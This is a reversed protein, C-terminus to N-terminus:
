SFKRWTKIEKDLKATTNAVPSLARITEDLKFQALEFLHESPLYSKLAALLQHQRVPPLSDGGQLLDGLMGLYMQIYAQTWYIGERGCSAGHAPYFRANARFERRLRDLGRLWELPHGDKMFLHMQNYILDGCFVMQTDQGEIFWVGDCDSECGGYDHIQFTVGDFVLKDVHRVVRNPFIRRQPFNNGFAQRMGEAETTDRARAQDISEKLAFFDVARDGIIEAVGMYHDPHGHTLLVALLPKKIEQEILTIVARSSSLAVGGDIVVVGRRTEVLHINVRMGLETATHTHIVPSNSNM